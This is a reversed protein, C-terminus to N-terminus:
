LHRLWCSREIKLSGVWDLALPNKAKVEATPPFRKQCIAMGMKKKVANEEDLRTRSTNAKEIGPYTDAFRRRRKTVSPMQRSALPRARTKQFVAAPM